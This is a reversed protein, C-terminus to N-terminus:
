CFVLYLVWSILAILVSALVAYGVLATRSTELGRRIKSVPYCVRNGDRRIEDTVKLNCTRWMNQIEWFTFPESEKGEKRIWYLHRVVMM